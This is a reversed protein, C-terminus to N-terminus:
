ISVQYQERLHKRLANVLYGRPNKARLAKPKIQQLFDALDGAKMAADFIVRNHNYETYSFGFDHQLIGKIDDPLFWGNLRSIVAQKEAEQDANRPQHIPTFKIATIEKKNPNGRGGEKRIAEWDFSYPATADLEAKAPEIIRRILDKTEKYKKELGFMARLEQITYIIPERQQAMLIYFRVSAPLTLRRAAGPEFARFGRTLDCVARWMLPGIFIEAEGNKIRTGGILQFSIWEDTSPEVTVVTKQLAQIEAKIQTHHTARGDEGEDIDSLPFYLWCGGFLDPQLATPKYGQGKPRPSLYDQAADIIKLIIRTGYIGMKYRGAALAYSARAVKRPKKAQITPRDEHTQKRAM